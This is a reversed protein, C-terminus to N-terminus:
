RPPQNTPERLRMDARHEGLRRTLMSVSESLRTLWVERQLVCEPSPGHARSSIPQNAWAAFPRLMEDTRDLNGRVDPM